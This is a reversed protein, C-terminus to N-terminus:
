GQGSKPLWELLKTYLEELRVPKPIFDNMGSELCKEKDERFTNGTMALIPTRKYGPLQRIRRTAELGDMRPMRMDMLILDYTTATSM